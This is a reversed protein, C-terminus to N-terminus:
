NAYLAKGEWITKMTDEVDTLCYGNILNPNNKEIRDIIINIATQIPTKSQNQFSNKKLVLVNEGINNVEKEELIIRSGFDEIRLRAKEFRLDFEFLQYYTEDFSLLQVIGPSVSFSLEGELSPDEPYPSHAGNHVEEIKIYDNFLFSLTDIIHVGNHQWGSYYTIFGNILDGYKGDTINNRIEKYRSDFRRTHNVVLDINKEASLAILHDMEELSSCAPKELFIVKITSDIKLLSKVISYHSDDPTCVSVIESKTTTIGDQFDDFAICNFKEAFLKGRVPNIDMCGSLELKLNDLYAYGHTFDNLTGDESYGAIYGCGIIFSKYM